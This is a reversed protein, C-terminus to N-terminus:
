PQRDKPRSAVLLVDIPLAIAFGLLIGGWLCAALVVIGTTVPYYGGILAIQGDALLQYLGSYSLLWYGALVMGALTLPVVIGCLLWPSVADARNQLRTWLSEAPM